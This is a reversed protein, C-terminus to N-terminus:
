LLNILNAIATRDDDIHELVNISVIADAGNPILSRLQPRDIFDCPPSPTAQFPPRRRLWVIRM